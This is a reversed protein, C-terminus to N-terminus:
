FKRFRILQLIFYFLFRPNQKLYRKWLRNPESLLRFFWELGVKQMWKPAHSKEGSIFDFVAGVGLMVAEIEGKNNAMWIEQKPCGIGVFLIDPKAENINSIIQRNESETLSRFPPSYMYNIKINPYKILLNDKVKQLVKDSSGGYFGLSLAEKDSISCLENTIDQGRIQSAEKYGLLRLAWYIPRGDPIVIDANNVVDRFSLFDYTEM